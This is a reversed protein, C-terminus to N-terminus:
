KSHVLIVCEQEFMPYLKFRSCDEIDMMFNLRFDLVTRLEREHVDYIEIIPFFAESEVSGGCVLLLGNHYTVIPKERAQSLWLEEGRQKSFFPKKVDINKLSVSLIQGIISANDLKDSDYEIGGVIFIHSPSAAVGFSDLDNLTSAQIIVGDSNLKYIFNM